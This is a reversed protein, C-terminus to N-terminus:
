SAKTNNELQKHANRPPKVKKPAAVLDRIKSATFATLGAGIGAIIYTAAGLRNTMRVKKFMEAPLFKKAMQNGRHSAMLEEAVIPVFSLTVLKGVNNKIFTTVKDFKTKPEEGEIKKRKILATLTLVSGTIMAPGRLKQMGKWFTSMNRNIAHGMEHFTSAGLKDINVGIRNTKPLFAANDGREFTSQLIKRYVKGLFTNRFWGPMEKSIAEGLKKNAEPLHEATESLVDSFLDGKIKAGGGEGFPRSSFPRLYSPIQFDLAPKVDLIEVGKGKLGSSEFADAIGKRLVANDLSQSTKKMKNIIPMGSAGFTNKVIGGAMNGVVVAGATPWFGPTKYQQGNDTTIIKSM